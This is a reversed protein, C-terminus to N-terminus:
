RLIFQCGGPGFSGPNGIGQPVLGKRLVSLSCACPNRRRSAPTGTRSHKKCRQRGPRQGLRLCRLDVKKNWPRRQRESQKCIHMRLVSPRASPISRWCHVRATSPPLSCLGSETTWPLRKSRQRHTLFRHPKAACLGSNAGKGTACSNSGRLSLCAWYAPSPALAPKCSGLRMGTKLLPQSAARAFASGQFARARYHAKRKEPRDALGCAEKRQSFVSM